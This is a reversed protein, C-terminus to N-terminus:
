CGTWPSTRVPRGRGTSPLPALTDFGGMHAMALTGGKPADPNHYDFHTYDAPYKLAGFMSFGHRYEIGPRDADPEALGVGASAVVCLVALRSM